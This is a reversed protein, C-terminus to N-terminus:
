QGAWARIREQWAATAEDDGQAVSRPWTCGGAEFTRVLVEMDTEPLSHSVDILVGVLEENTTLSFMNAEYGGDQDNPPVKSLLGYYSCLVLADWPLDDPAVEAVIQTLWHQVVSSFSGRLYHMFCEGGVIDGVRSYFLDPGLRALDDSDYGSTMGALLNVYGLHLIPLNELIERAGLDRDTCTHPLIDVRGDPWTVPATPVDNSTEEAGSDLDEAEIVFVESMAPVNTTSAGMSSGGWRSPSAASAGDIMHGRASAARSSLLGSQFGPM